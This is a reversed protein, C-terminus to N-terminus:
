LTNPTTCCRPGSPWAALRERVAESASFRGVPLDCLFSPRSGWCCCQCKYTFYTLLPVVTDNKEPLLDYDTAPMLIVKLKFCLKPKRDDNAAFVCVM